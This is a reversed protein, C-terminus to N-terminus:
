WINYGGDLNITEGVMYSSKKSLLYDVLGLIEEKNALRGIPVKQRFNEIFNQNQNNLIGGMRISNIRLGEKAYLAGYYKTLGDLAHKSITYSLSKPNKYM